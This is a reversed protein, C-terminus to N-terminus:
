REGTGKEEVSTYEAATRMMTRIGAGFGFLSMVIIMIPATGLWHDFGYGIGFGLIMGIVLELVMRWVYSISKHSLPKIVTNESERALLIKEQLKKLKDKGASPSTM